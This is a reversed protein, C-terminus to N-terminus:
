CLPTYIDDFVSTVQVKSVGLLAWKYRSLSLFHRRYFHTETTVIRFQLFLVHGADFMLLRASPPVLM